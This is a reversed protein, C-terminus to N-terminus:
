FIVNLITQYPWYTNIREFDIGNYNHISLQYLLLAVLICLIVARSFKQLGKPVVQIYYPVLLICFIYFFRSFRSAFVPSQQFISAIFYGVTVMTLSTKALNSHEIKRYGVIGVGSLLLFCYHILQGGGYEADTYYELKGSIDEFATIGNLFDMNLNVSALSTFFSLVIIALNGWRGLKLYHVVLLLIGALAVQHVFFGVVLTAIFLLPRNKEYLFYLYGGFIIAVMAAARITSLGFLFQYPFCIFVFTSLLKDPSYRNIAWMTLGVITTHNVIFFLQPTNRSIRMLERELFEFREISGSVIAERYTIYDWGIDYSLGAFLSLLIFAFMCLKSQESPKLTKSYFWITFLLVIYIFVGEIYYM